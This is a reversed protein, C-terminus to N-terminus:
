ITVCKTGGQCQPKGCSRPKKAQRTQCLQYIAWIGDEDKDPILDNSPDCPQFAKVDM